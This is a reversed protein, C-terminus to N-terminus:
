IPLMWDQQMMSLGSQKQCTSHLQSPLMPMFLSFMWDTCPWNVDHFPCVSPCLMAGNVVHGELIPALRRDHIDSEAVLTSVDSGNDEEIIRQVSPSVYVYSPTLRQDPPSAPVMSAQLPVDEGKTLCFNNRYLIWYNKLDWAYRPLDLVEQQHEFGRHYESWQIEVGNLYLGEMAPMMACWADKDKRLSGFVSYQQNLINKIMGGCTPHSGVELWITKENALSNAQAAEIAGQFNVAQRCANTLYIGDLTQEDGPPIM